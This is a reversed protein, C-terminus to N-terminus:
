PGIVPRRTFASTSHVEDVHAVIKVSVTAVAKAAPIERDEFQDRKTHAEIKPCVSDTGSM